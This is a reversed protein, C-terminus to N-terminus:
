VREEEKKRLHSNVSNRKKLPLVFFFTSGMRAESEVWIRGGHREIIEKTIYLGLGLGTISSNVDKARYFQSFIHSINEENIGIGYDKVSVQIETESRKASVEIRDSEPSYKIANTVLNTLVQDLRMKDGELIMEGSEEFYIEHSTYAERIAELNEKILGTFDFEEFYFQLKGSQIKSIDFLDNILANLKKLQTIAKAVFPRNVDIVKRELLQLFGSMSTLPTRLEHSALAIFEDKKQSLEKVETFLRSNDLAVAAQSALSVVIDEHEQLFVGAEPHGFFLGGVVNGSSSIVPVALYSVVPLHGEPMGFYPANQGYRPDKTIDDVRLVGEVSFTHHFVATNRPMGFNEFAEKPAGSLSYLMYAEGDQNITNYFFVGFTAGTIQTTADTVKQLISETDLKESIAKGITNLIKLKEAQHRIATEAKKAATIDRAIKSAGIITGHRDKVPSVTLSIDIASGNKHLRVTQFHDVKNGNRINEIIIDEESLRDRPILISIHKGITEREQYGFIKEAGGNWTTIIGNLTKSIIADDSNEVIAALMGRKEETDREDTVDRMIHSAGIVEGEENKIPSITLSVPFDVHLKDNRVTYLHNVREGSWVRELIALQEQRVSEPILGLINQGLLVPAPCRFMKEAATNCNLIIYDLDHSLVADEMGEFIATLTFLDPLLNNKM